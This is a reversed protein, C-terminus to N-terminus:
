PHNPKGWYWWNRSPYEKTWGEGSVTYETARNRLDGSKVGGESWDYLRATGDEWLYHGGSPRTSYNSKMDGQESHARVYRTTTYNWIIDGCLPAIGKMRWTRGYYSRIGSWKNAARVNKLPRFYKYYATDTANTPGAVAPWWSDRVNADFATPWQYGWFFYKLYDVRPNWTLGGFSDPHCNKDQWLSPCWRIMDPWYDFLGAYDTERPRVSSPSYYSPLLETNDGMYLFCGISVQHLNSLCSIRMANDRAKELAPLLLAALVAIIAIVVLLEILTFARKV